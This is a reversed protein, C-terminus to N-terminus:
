SREEQYISRIRGFLLAVILSVIFLLLFGQAAAYGHDFFRLATRYTFLSYVETARGPGGLTLSTPIDFVKFAEVLRLLLILWLIPTMLPLTISRFSQWGSAGDVEAAEYLDAPLGQLAALSVLFVFPTWQWIDILIVAVLAWFPNSLWPIGAGGLARLLENIPGNIEYFLTISLYGVAVPTAFLPLVMIARLVSKGRMERNLLLALGFGLLMQVTVTIIVFTLTVRLGNHLNADTFLRFYNAFGVFQNIRGFRFSFFSTYLAYLLPFITFLLVWIVAPMIFFFK